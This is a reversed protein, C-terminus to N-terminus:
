TSRRMRLARGYQVVAEGVAVFGVRTYFSLAHPNADVEMFQWGASRALSGIEEVLARGIGRRMWDPDVFLDEVEASAETLLITAFGAVRGDAVAVRTRGQRLALDSWDLLEPHASFLDRDGENTLCSRRFVEQVVALDAAVGPRISVNAPVV